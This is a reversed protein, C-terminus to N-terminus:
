GPLCACEPRCARGSCSRPQAARWRCAVHRDQRDRVVGAPQPRLAHHALPRARDRQRDALRDRRRRHRRGSSMSATSVHISLSTRAGPSAASAIRGIRSSARRAWRSRSVGAPCSRRMTSAPWCSRTGASEHAGGNSRCPLRMQVSEGHARRAPHRQAVDLLREALARVPDHAREVFPPQAAAVHHRAFPLRARRDHEAALAQARRGDTAACTRDRGVQEVEGDAM